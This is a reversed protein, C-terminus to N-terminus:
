LKGLNVWLVTITKKLNVSKLKSELKLKLFSPAVAINATATATRYDYWVINGHLVVMLIVM